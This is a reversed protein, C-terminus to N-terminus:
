AHRVARRLRRTPHYRGIGQPSGRDRLPPRPDKVQEDINEPVEPVSDPDPVERDEPDELTRLYVEELVKSRTEESIDVENYVTKNIQKFSKLLERERSLAQRKSERSLSTISM